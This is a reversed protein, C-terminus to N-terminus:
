RDLRTEVLTVDALTLGGANAICAMQAGNMTLVKEGSRYGDLLEFRPAPTLAPDYALIIIDQGRDFERVEVPRGPRVPRGRRIRNEIDDIAKPRRTAGDGMQVQERPQNGNGQVSM